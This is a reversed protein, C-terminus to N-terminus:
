TTQRARKLKFLRWSRLICFFCRFVNRYFYFISRNDKKLAPNACIPKWVVRDKNCCNLRVHARSGFFRCTALTRSLFLLGQYARFKLGRNPWQDASVKYQCTDISWLTSTWFWLIVTFILAVHREWYRSAPTHSGLQAVGGDDHTRTWYRWGHYGHSFWNM